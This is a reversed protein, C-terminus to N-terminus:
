LDHRAETKEMQFMRESADSRFVRNPDCKAKMELFKKQGPFTKAIDTSRLWQDKSLCVQGGAATVRDFLGYVEPAKRKKLIPKARTDIGFSFGDLFIKTFIKLNFRAKPV